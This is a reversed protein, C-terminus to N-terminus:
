TYEGVVSILSRNLLVTRNIHKMIARAASGYSKIFLYFHDYCCNATSNFGQMIIDHLQAQDTLM